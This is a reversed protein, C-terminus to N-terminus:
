VTSDSDNSGRNMKRAVGNRTTRELGWEEDLGDPTSDAYREGTTRALSRQSVISLLSVFQNEFIIRLVFRM